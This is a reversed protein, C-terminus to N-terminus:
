SKEVARIIEAFNDSDLSAHGVLFGSVNGNKILDSANKAEVSGGYIIVVKKAVERGYMGTLVKRILLVTEHLKHSDMAEDATKGIAWVPEYALICTEIDKKSIGYLSSKIQEQLVRIYEGHSDREKEGICIIPIIKELFLAKAKKAVMESTEGLFRRESHGIIVYEGGINKIMASSVEGTHAGGKQWFVNQTGLSFNKSKQKGFVSIYVLPPCIVVKTKSLRSLKSKVGSFLKKAEDLTPPNMKWNAIVIKKAM